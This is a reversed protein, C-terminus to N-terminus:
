DANAQLIRLVQQRVKLRVSAAACLVDAWRHGAAAAAAAAAADLSTFSRGM